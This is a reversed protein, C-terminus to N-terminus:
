PTLVIRWAPTLTVPGILGAPSLEKGKFQKCSKVGSEGYGVLRNRLAPTVTVTIDNQGDRLYATVDVAYPFVLLPPVKHGNVEVEAVDHVRGLELKVVLGEELYAGELAFVASYAGKSSCYKLQDIERWDPLSDLHMAVATMAGDYARLETALKWRRLTLPAPADRAIEADWPKGDGLSVPYSGSQSAFAVVSSGDRAVPLSSRVVHRAPKGPRLVLLASGFSSFALPVRVGGDVCEHQPAEVVEGTWPDMLFPVCGAHPFTITLSVPERLGHRIFYIEGAEAHKHFYHISPQLEDFSIEPTVRRRGLYAVLEADSRVLSGLRGAVSECLHLVLADNDSFNLYGPQRDPVCRLFAVPIGANAVEKIKEAVAVDVREVDPLILAKLRAQGMVLRGGEVRASVLSHANVHAYSYGLSQLHNATQIFQKMWAEEEDLHAAARGYLARKALPADFEDLYGGALEEDVVQADPYNLLPYYMGLDCGPVGQQLAAQCRTVYGNMQPVYNWFTNVPTFDSSFSISMGGLGPMHPSAWPNTGPYPDDPRKYPYAHYILQNIGSVFLRDAAVKWKLPTTLYDRGNFVISESTVISMDYLLAASGALRLFDRVGGAYLQETEPIHSMGYTKLTDARIGYAQIRSLLGHEEAWEAMSRAFRETFLDAVTQEYDHRVRRGLDAPTEPGDAYDFCPRLERKFLAANILLMYKNDRLPVYCIPLYPTLDYGRRDEFEQLFWDTWAWDASLELSDTFVARLAKGAHDGWYAMGRGLHHRLHSLIPESAYHDVIYSRGHSDERADMTPSAGTPGGYIAFVQWTGEPVEWTLRGDATVQGTLDIASHPDLWTTEKPPLKTVKGPIGRPQVAVVKVIDLDGPDAEHLFVELGALKGIRPLVSHKLRPVSGRYRRGGYVVKSAMSLTKLSDAKSIHVGGAPWASCVTVDFVMGRTTAEDLVARVMEYYYPQSFRHIREFRAPDRKELNTPLGTAFVQIEAGLLGADDMEAVQRLLEDKEVDMGPWWWRVMPRAAKRPNRFWDLNPASM